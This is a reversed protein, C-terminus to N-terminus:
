LSLKRSTIAASAALLALTPAPYMSRLPSCYRTRVGPWTAFMSSILCITIPDRLPTGTRIDSTASTLSPLSRRVPAAVSLPFSITIPM